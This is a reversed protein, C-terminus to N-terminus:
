KYFPFLRGNTLHIGGGGEDLIIGLGNPYQDLIREYLLQPELTHEIPSIINRLYSIAQTGNAETLREKFVQDFSIM